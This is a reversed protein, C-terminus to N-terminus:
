TSRAIGCGRMRGHTDATRLRWAVDPGAPLWCASCNTTLQADDDHLRSERREAPPPTGQLM